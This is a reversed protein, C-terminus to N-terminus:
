LNRDAEAEEGFEMEGVRLLPHPFKGPRRDLCMVSDGLLKSRFPPVETSM